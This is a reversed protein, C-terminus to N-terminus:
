RSEAPASRRAPRVDHRSEYGQQGAYYRGGCCEFYLMRITYATGETHISQVAHWHGCQPCRVERGPELKEM